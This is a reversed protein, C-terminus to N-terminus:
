LVTLEYPGAIRGEAGPQEVVRLVLCDGSRREWVQRGSWLDKKMAEWNWPTAATKKFFHGSALTM